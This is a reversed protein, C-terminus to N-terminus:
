RSASFRPLSLYDKKSPFTFTLSVVNSVRARKATRDHLRETIRLSNVVVVGAAKPFEDM